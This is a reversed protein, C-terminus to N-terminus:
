DGTPGETYVAMICKARSQPGQPLTRRCTRYRRAQRDYVARAQDPPLKALREALKRSVQFHQYDIPDDWYGGWILFGHDAFIDIVAEAMGLRTPKGPRDNLRNANEVGVPPSFTLTPGSRKAFPNQVPNIDIALGYAHLSLTAGGTIDRVNFASTNNDAMSADDNGDYHNMLRAKAIPFRIKRLATFIDLVHEAAADMVVIEGDDLLRGSFDVYSFNILNLRDCGVPGKPNLVQHLKMDECLSQSIPVVSGAKRARPTATAILIPVFFLTLGMM